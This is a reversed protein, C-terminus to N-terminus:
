KEGIIMSNGGPLNRVMTKTFGASRMWRTCDTATYGFGGATWLLMNLSSLLGTTSTRRDDDILMDYVIVAGGTRISRYAKDLLMKKAELDWNHLVRGLVIVDAQPLPDKFFDGGAFSVRDAVNREAAYEEFASCLMPLDFGIARVHPHALAVQVPLCGQATGVDCLTQYNEWPFQNAIGQSALLSGSTMASVFTRFRVADNYLSGFHDQGHTEAAPNGTQLSQTLSGWLAYERRNYQDFSAGLYTPKAQDLYLDSEETNRYRGEDDRTLLGTAVLADFFDRAARGHVQIRSALERADLPGAALESFVGLEVASLLVKAQRYASGIEFLRDTRPHECTM